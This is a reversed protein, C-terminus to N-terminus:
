NHTCRILNRVKDRVQKATRTMQHDSLFKRCEDITPSTSNTIHDNFYEEIAESTFPVKGNGKCREGREQERLNQMVKFGKLANEPGKNAAYYLKHSRESHSMANAVAAREEQRLNVVATAASHRTATTTSPLTFGLKTSLSKVHRSLHDLPQGDRNPFLLVSDSGELTPRVCNVYLDIAKYLVSPASLKARGTTRTKHKSVYFTKYSEWGDTHSVAARYERVTANFVAGPRQANMYMLSGALWLVIKHTNTSNVKEKRKITEVTNDLIGRMTACSADIDTMPAAPMDELMTRKVERAQKRLTASWNAIFALCKNAKVTETTDLSFNLYTLGQKVRCLRAHM